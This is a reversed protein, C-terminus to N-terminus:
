KMFGSLNSQANTQALIILKCIDEVVRHSNTRYDDEWVVVVTYGLAKLFDVKTQDKNWIQEATKTNGPFKPIDDKSFKTPNAHYIDGNFEVCFKISPIVFDYFYFRDHNEDYRGFEKKKTAYLVDLDCFRNAIEDFLNQSIKSYYKKSRPRRYEEFKRKGEDEGYTRICWDLPRSKVRNLTKYFETGAVQGHKEIFYDLSCGAYSQKEKYENWRKTGEEEGHRAIMRELTQARNANYNDFQERSWGYKEKKHDFTNKTAQKECYTKWRRSGEEEGYKKIQSALTMAYKSSGGDDIEATPFRAKYEVLAIGSCKRLHNTQISKLQKGCM